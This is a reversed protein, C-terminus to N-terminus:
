KSSGAGPEFYIPDASIRQAARMGGFLAYGGSLAVLARFDMGAVPLPAHMQWTGRQVDFAFVAASPEAPQGDYGIGNYNYPRNSGGAFFIEGAGEHGVAGSRYLPMGPHAPLECWRISGISEPDLRGIWCADAIAFQNKGDSGKVATVGDCVVMTDGVLGGSHGFVPMGPWPTGTSWRKTRTDYVQVNAVNASDHWGSVLVIWRDRWALAVSDDVSVPMVTEIEFKASKPSFRLIEPTSVEAGQTSITYGGIVYVAGAVAVASSALRGDPVPIDGVKRWKGTRLDLAHVDRAIDVPAKGPGLGYFAFVHHGSRAVAWNSRAVPAADMSM